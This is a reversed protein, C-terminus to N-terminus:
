SLYRRTPLETLSPLKVNVSNWAVQELVHELEEASQQSTSFLLERMLYRQYAQSPEASLWTGEWGRTQPALALGPRKTLSKLFHRDLTLNCESLRSCFEVWPAWLHQQVRGSGGQWLWPGWSTWRSVCRKGFYSIHQFSRLFFCLDWQHFLFTM